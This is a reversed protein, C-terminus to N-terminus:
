YGPAAGATYARLVDEVETGGKKNARKLADVSVRSYQDIGRHYFTVMEWQPDVVFIIMAYTAKFLRERTAFNDLDSGLELALEEARKSTIGFIASANNVSPRLTLLGSLFNGSRKRLIHQYYKSKDTIRTKRAEDILDNLLILDYFWHLSGAKVRIYREAMTNNNSGSRLIGMMTADDVDSVMLRTQMNVTKVNGNAAFTVEFSKGVSLNALERLDAQTSRGHAFGREDRADDDAAERGLGRKIQNVLLTGSEAPNPLGIGWNETGVFKYASAGTGLLAEIPDRRTNIQGLIEQDNIGDVEVLTSIASLMYGTVLQLCSQMIDNAYPLHAIESDIITLFENRTNRSVEIISESNGQRWLGAMKSVVTSVVPQLEELM